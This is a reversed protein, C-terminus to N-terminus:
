YVSVEAKKKRMINTVYASFLLIIAVLSFFGCLSTQVLLMALIAAGVGYLTLRNRRAELKKCVIENPSRAINENFNSM